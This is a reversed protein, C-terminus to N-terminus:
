ENFFGNAIKIDYKGDRFLPFKYDGEGVVM